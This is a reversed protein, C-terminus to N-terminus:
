AMRRGYAEAIGTHGNWQKRKGSPDTGHFNGIKHVCIGTGRVGEDPTLNVRHFTHPKLDVAKGHSGIAIGQAFGFVLGFVLAGFM